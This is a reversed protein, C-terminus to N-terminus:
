ARLARLLVVGLVVLREIKATTPKAEVGAVKTPETTETKILESIESPNLQM